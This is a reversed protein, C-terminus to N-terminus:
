QVNLIQLFFTTMPKFIDTERASIIVTALMCRVFSIDYRSTNRCINIAANVHCVDFGDDRSPLRWIPKQGEMLLTYWYRLRYDVGYMLTQDGIDHYLVYNM